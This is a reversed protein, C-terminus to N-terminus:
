GDTESLVESSVLILEDNAVTVKSRDSDKIYKRLLRIWINNTTATLSADGTCKRIERSVENIIEDM